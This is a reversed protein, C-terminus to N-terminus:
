FLNAPAAVIGIIIPGTGPRRLSTEGGGPPLPQPNLAVQVNHADIARLAARTAAEIFDELNIKEAKPQDAVSRGRKFPTVHPFPNGSSALGAGRSSRRAAGSGWKNIGKGRGEIVHIRSSGPTNAPTPRFRARRAVLGIQGAGFFRTWDSLGDRFSIALFHSIVSPQHRIPFLSRPTKGGTKECRDDAM